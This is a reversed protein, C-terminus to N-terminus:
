TEEVPESPDALIQDFISKEAEFRTQAINDSLNRKMTGYLTVEGVRFLNMFLELSIGGAFCYLCHKYKTVLTM